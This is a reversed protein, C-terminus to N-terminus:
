KNWKTDLLENEHGFTSKNQTRTGDEKPSYMKRIRERKNKRVSVTTWKNGRLNKMILWSHSYRVIGFKWGSLSTNLLVLTDNPSHISCFISSLITCVSISVMIICFGKNQGSVLNDWLRSCLLCFRPLEASISIINIYLTYLLLIIYMTFHGFVHFRTWPSLGVPPRFIVFSPQIVSWPLHCLSSAHRILDGTPVVKHKLTSRM